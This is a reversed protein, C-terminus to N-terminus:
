SNLTKKSKIMREDPLNLFAERYKDMVGNAGLKHYAVYMKELDEKADIPAYGRKLWEEYRVKLENKIVSQLGEKLLMDNETIEELKTMIQAHEQLKNAKLSETKQNIDGVMNEIKSTFDNYEKKRLAAEKEKEEKWKKPRNFAWTITTAVTTTIVTSLILHLIQSLEM